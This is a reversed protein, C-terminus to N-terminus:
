PSVFSNSNYENQKKNPARTRVKNRLANPQLMAWLLFILNTLENTYNKNPESSWFNFFAKTFRTIIIKKM